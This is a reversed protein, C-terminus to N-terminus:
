VSPMPPLVNIGGDGVALRLKVKLLHPVDLVVQQTEARDHNLGRLVRVLVPTHVRRSSVLTQAVLRHQGRDLVEVAVHTLTGVQRDDIVVPLRCQPTVLVPDDVRGLLRLESYELETLERRVDSWRANVKQQEAVNPVVEHRFSELADRIEVRREHREAAGATVKQEARQQVAVRVPPQEPESQGVGAVDIVGVRQPQLEALRLDDREPAVSLPPDVLRTLYSEPRPADDRMRLVNAAKMVPILPGVALVNAHGRSM